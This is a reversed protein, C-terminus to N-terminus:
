AAIPAALITVEIDKTQIAAPRKKMKLTKKPSEEPPADTAARTEATKAIHEAAALLALQHKAELAAEKAAKREALLIAKAKAKQLRAVKRRAVLYPKYVKRLVILVPRCKKKLAKLEKEAKKAEIKAEKRRKIEAKLERRLTAVGEKKARKEDRLAKLHARATKIAKQAREREAIQEPTYKVYAM